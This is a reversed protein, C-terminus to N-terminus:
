QKVAMNILKFIILLLIESSNFKNLILVFVSENLSNVTIWLYDERFNLYCIKKLSSLNGDCYPAFALISSKITLTPHVCMLNKLQSLKDM